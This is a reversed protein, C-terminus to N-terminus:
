VYRAVLAVLLVLLLVWFFVGFGLAAARAEEDVRSPGGAPYPRRSRAPVAAALVLAFLLAIFFFTLVPVGWFLPGFPTVWPGLAWAGMWVILFFFLLAPWGQDTDSRGWGFAFVFLAALVIAIFLAIALEAVLM